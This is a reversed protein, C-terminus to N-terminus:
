IILLWACSPVSKASYVYCNVYEFQYRLLPTAFPPGRKETLRYDCFLWYDKNRISIRQIQGHIQISNYRNRVKFPNCLYTCEETASGFDRFCIDQTNVKMRSVNTTFYVTMDRMEHTHRVNNDISLRINCYCKFAIWCVLTTSGIGTCSM